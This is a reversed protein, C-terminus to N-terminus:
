GADPPDVVDDIQVAKRGQQAGLSGRFRTVGNVRIAIQADVHQETTIIDGVGLDRLDGPAVTTKALQAVLAVHASDCAEGHGGTTARSGGALRDILQCLWPWPLCLSLMGRADNIAVAMVVVAVVENPAAAEAAQPNSEIREIMLELGAVGRWAKVLEEVFLTTIRAALRLEIETLPRRVIPSKERGGGLLRDIIPYLISPQVDLALFGTVPRSRLLNFCTPNDLSFVFESYTLQEV